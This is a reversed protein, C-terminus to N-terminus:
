TPRADPVAAPPRAPARKDARDDANALAVVVARRPEPALIPDEVIVLSCGLGLFVFLVFTVQLFSFSDYVFMSAAYASTSGTLALLLWSEVSEERMAASGLRRLFRIFLWALAAVGVAGTEILSALWQNDLIDANAELGTTIRTGAGIGVIPSSAIQDFAPGYDETRGQNSLKEGFFSSKLTGLTGPMAFHAAVIFPVVLPAFRLSERPKLVFFTFGLVALMLVSTRSVSALSGVALVVLSVWYYWRRRSLGLYLSFPAIMVLLAGLAIPHEASGMARVGSGRLTPGQNLPSLIKIWRELGTFPTWGTRSEIIALVALLFGGTTLVTLVTQVGEMSRVTSVVFVFVLVFGLFVLASKFVSGSLARAVDMNFAVSGLIALVYLVLPAGLGSRRVSERPDSLLSLGWFALILLFVLRYLELQFPLGVAVEYRRIPVFLIVILFLAFPFRWDVRFRTGVDAM